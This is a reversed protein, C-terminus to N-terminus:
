DAGSLNIVSDLPNEPDQFPVPEGRTAAFSEDRTGTGSHCADLLVLLSGESGLKKRINLLLPYLDDDRLHNEGKYGTPNYKPMADYPMFAEDYGDDEDKGLEITKQDRIQQGHCSFHVVVIDNKKAKESLQILANLIAKKTAKSNILTDINQPEFGNKGLASKIYKVDNVSAISKIRSTAPYEGVAVILALKSQSLSNTTIFVSLLFLIYKMLLNQNCHNILTGYVLRFNPSSKM